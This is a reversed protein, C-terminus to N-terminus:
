GITLMSSPMLSSSQSPQFSSVSVMPSLTWSTPSSKNTVLVWRKLSPMSFFMALLMKTFTFWIPVSVSVMSATSMAWRAFYVLTILWRLPSVSSLVM